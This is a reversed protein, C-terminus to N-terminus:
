VTGKIYIYSNNRAVTLLFSLRCAVTTKDYFIFFPHSNKGEM